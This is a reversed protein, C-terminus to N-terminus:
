TKLFDDLHLSHYLRQRTDNPIEIGEGSKRYLLVTKRLSDVVVTCNECSELHRELEACLGAELEGDIYLSLSDLLHKCNENHVHAM